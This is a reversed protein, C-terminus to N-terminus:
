RSVLKVFQIIRYAVIVAMEVTLGLGVIAFYPWAIKWSWWWYSPCREGMVERALPEWRTLNTM